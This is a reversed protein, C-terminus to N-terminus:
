YHQLSLVGLSILDRSLLFWSCFVVSAANRSNSKNWVNGTDGQLTEGAQQPHPLGEAAGPDCRGRNAPCRRAPHTPHELYDAKIGKQM